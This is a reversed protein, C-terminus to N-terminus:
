RGLARIESGGPWRVLPVDNKFPDRGNWSKLRRAAGHCFRVMLLEVAAEPFGPSRHARATRMGGLCPTERLGGGVRGCLRRTRVSLRVVGREKLENFRADSNQRPPFRVATQLLLHRPQQQQQQRMEANCSGQQKQQM